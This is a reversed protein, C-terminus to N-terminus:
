EAALNGVSRNGEESERRTAIDRSLTAAQAESSPVVDVYTVVIRPGEPPPPNGATAGARKLASGGGILLVALTGWALASMRIHM